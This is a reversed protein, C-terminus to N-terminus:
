PQASFLLLVRRSMSLRSHPFKHHYFRKITFSTNEIGTAQAYKWDANFTALLNSVVTKNSIMIGVERSYHLSQHSLNQSGVFALHQDAIIMKAHIFYQPTVNVAVTPSLIRYTENNDASPVGPTTPSLPPLMLQVTVGNNAAHLLIKKLNLAGDGPPDNLYEVQIALSHKATRLLLPVLSLANIDSIILNSTDPITPLPRGTADALFVAKLLAIDDSNSDCLIYERNAYGAHNGGLAQATFNATMIYARAKGPVDADVLIFKAHHVAVPKGDTRIGKNQTAWSPFRRSGTPDLSPPLDPQHYLLHLDLNHHTAKHNLLMQAVHDNDFLYMEIWLSKTASAIIDQIVKLGSEPQIGVLSIHANAGAPLTPFHFPSVAPAHHSWPLHM